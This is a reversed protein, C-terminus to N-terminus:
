KRNRKDDNEIEKYLEKAKKILDKMNDDNSDLMITTEAIVHDEGDWKKRTITLKNHFPIIHEHSVEEDNEETM